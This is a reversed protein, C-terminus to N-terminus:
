EDKYKMSLVEKITYDLTNVEIRINKDLNLTVLVLEETFKEKLKRFM